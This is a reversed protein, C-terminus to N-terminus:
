LARKFARDLIAPLLADFEATAQDHACRIEDVRRRTDRLALQAERPPLPFDYKLFDEPNLRRRRVNTGTSTGSLTPWVSPSRFYVDLVEPLVRAEDITFVPFEPSVYLGDCEEPVTALAGEWAMLKPYVFEGTRLQTLRKYAFDMGAKREGRFVGRGFCYVGAFHYTETALVEVDPRRWTVLEHMPTRVPAGYRDDYIIARCLQNCEEASKTRLNRAEDIKAALRDIKAVIRRQEALPPLPITYGLVHNPRIAAYNTSGRAAVQDRFSRTKSYYNLFAPHLRERNPVFLFYHNSVIAGDLASPVIGFGGVKADIEAVLFENARCVQQTKTKILAGEVEDRLVVGQAHLQVRCRKYTALDDIRTTEKRHFLVEGLPVLPWNNSVNV